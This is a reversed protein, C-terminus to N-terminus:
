ESYTNVKELPCYIVMQKCEQTGLRAFYLKLYHSSASYKTRYSDQYRDWPPQDANLESDGLINTYLDAKYATYRNGIPYSM